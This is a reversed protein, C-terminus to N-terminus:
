IDNLNKYKQSEKARPDEGGGYLFILFFLMKVYPNNPILIPYLPHRSDNCFSKPRFINLIFIKLKFRKFFTFKEAKELVLMAGEFIFLKDSFIYPYSIHIYLVFNSFNNSVM